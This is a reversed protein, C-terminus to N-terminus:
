ASQVEKEDTIIAGNILEMEVTRDPTLRVARVATSLLDSMTDADAPGQELRARLRELEHAPTPDPIQEYRQTTVALILTKMYPAVRLHQKRIDKQAYKPDAPTVIVRKPAKVPANM